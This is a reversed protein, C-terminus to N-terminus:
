LKVGLVLIDDRQAANKQFNRLEDLLFSKQKAMAEKGYLLLLTKFKETGFKERNPNPNDVFGDTSLYVVDDKDLICINDEFPSQNFGISSGGIHNRSGKMELIENDKFIYLPRRAGAYTVLFQGNAKNEICCLCVDMGDNNGTEKQKLSSIVGENLMDLVKAPSHVKNENIIKNLLTNGIMSMFAGPVGHGTCDVAAFFQKNDIQSYWYFDGSVVDKPLYIVFFDQLNSKIVEEQPLIAKQIQSAYQISQSMHQNLDVLEYNKREIFDRQAMIEERQQHLEENQVLIEEQKQQLERTREEVKNELIENQELIIRANEETAALAERQAKDKEKRIINVRDALAFSLGVVQFMAGILHFVRLFPSNPLLGAAVFGAVSVGILFATWSIVFYGGSRNGMRWIIIGVIVEFFGLFSMTAAGIKVMIKYEIVFGMITFCGFLMVLGWIVKNFRPLYKETNLFSIMFLLAAISGLTLGIPVVANAWWLANPWLHQFTHGNLSGQALGYFFIYIFYYLYSSNRIAFYLVLNYIGMILLIGYFMGFLIETKSIHKSLGQSSYLYAPFQISSETEIKFLYVKSEHPHLDINFVPNRYFITRASFPVKDGITKQTNTWNGREDQTFIDIKDSLPYDFEIFLNQYTAKINQIHVKIWFNSKKFGYAPDDTKVNIFKSEGLALVAKLSMQKTSDEFVYLYKSINTSGTEPNAEVIKQAFCPIQALCVLFLIWLRMKRLM